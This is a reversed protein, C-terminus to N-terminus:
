RSNNWERRDEAVSNTLRVQHSGDANMSYIEGNGDRQSTFAIKTGDPSWAPWSDVAVNNTLNTQGTGDADMSYIEGKGDRESTFAITTGDPSWSPETDEAVNTTLRVQGTGSANMSYIEGNGDRDSYFAIRGNVGTSAAAPPGAAGSIGLAAASLVVAVLAGITPRSM